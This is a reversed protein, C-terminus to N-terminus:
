DIRILNSTISPAYLVDIIVAKQGDKIVVKINGKEESTFHREDVFRIEKKVSEGLMIFWRKNGTMHNNCGSDLCWVRALDDSTQTNAMLMVDDSDSGGAHAFQVYEKGKTRSKKPFKCDREYRGLRQCNYCQVEKRDVIKMSYKNYLGKKISDTHNKLNKSSNEDNALNKIQKVKEKGYKKIFRVHLAQEVVKERKLNRQKLRM